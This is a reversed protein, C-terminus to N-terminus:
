RVECAKEKRQQLILNSHYRSQGGRVLVTLTVHSTQSWTRYGPFLCVHTVRAMMLESFPEEARHECCTESIVRATMLDGNKVFDGHKPALPSLVAM